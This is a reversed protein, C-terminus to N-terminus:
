QSREQRAVQREIRRITEYVHGRPRGSAEYDRQEDQVYALLDVLDRTNVVTTTKM